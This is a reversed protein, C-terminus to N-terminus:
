HVQLWSIWPDHHNTLASLPFPFLLRLLKVSGEMRESRFLGPDVIIVSKGEVVRVMM